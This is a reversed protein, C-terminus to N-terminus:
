AVAIAEEEEGRAMREGVPEGDTIDRAMVEGDAGAETEDEDEDADRGICAALLCGMLRRLAHDSLLISDRM